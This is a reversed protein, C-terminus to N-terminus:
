THSSRKAVGLDDSVRTRIHAAWESVDVTAPSWDITGALDPTYLPIFQEVLSFRSDRDKRCLIVPVNLGLCPSAVHLLPTLVVAAEKVYRDMLSREYRESRAMMDQPLPYQFVPLRHAILEVRPLLESPIQSLVAPPLLGAGEGFVIFVKGDPVANQRPPLCMTICGSVYAEVGGKQLVAATAPDRCGIPQHAVLWDKHQRVLGADKTCFGVFIPKVHAPAPLHSRRFVGNMILTAPPGSYDPLTDRDIEIVEEDAVGLSRYVHRSAITQANDGLNVSYSGVEQLKTEFSSFGAYSFGLVGYKM